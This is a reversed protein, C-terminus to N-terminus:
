GSIAVTYDKDSQLALLKHELYTKMVQLDTIRSTLDDLKRQIIQQKEELTLEGTEWSDILSRIESLSFGAAQGRKILVLRQVADRSYHRYGNATRLIHSPELLGEKEYFRITHAPIGVQEALEHILMM